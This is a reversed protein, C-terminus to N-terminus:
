PWLATIAGIQGLFIVLITVNGSQWSGLPFDAFDKEGPLPLLHSHELLSAVLSVERVGEKGGM